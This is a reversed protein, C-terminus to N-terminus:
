VNQYDEVTFLQRGAARTEDMDGVLRIPTVAPEEEEDGQLEITIGEEVEAKHVTIIFEDGDENTNTVRVAIPNITRIGGSEFLRHEAPEYEYVILLDDGIDTNATDYVMIGRKGLADQYQTWDAPPNAYTVYLAIQDGAEQGVIADAVTITDVTQSDVPRVEGRTLNVIYDDDGLPQATINLVTTTTGAEATAVAELAAVDDIALASLDHNQNEIEIFREFAWDGSAVTQYVDEITTGLAVSSYEDLGGRIRALNELNIEMLDGALAATHNTIRATIMGANHSMVRVKEWEEEFMIDRMAGLDVWGFGDNVEFKGSGFRISNFEQVTTQRM